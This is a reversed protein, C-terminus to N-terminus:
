RGGKLRGAGGKSPRGRKRKPIPTATHKADLVGAVSIMKEHGASSGGADQMIEDADARFDYEHVHVHVDQAHHDSEADAEHDYDREEEDEDDSMLGPNTDVTHPSPNTDDEISPQSLSSRGIETRPSALSFSTHQSPKMANTANNPVSSPSHTGVFRNSTSMSLQEESAEPEEHEDDDDLSEVDDLTVRVSAMAIERSLDGGKGRMQFLKSLRPMQASEVFAEANFTRALPSPQIPRSHCSLQRAPSASVPHLPTMSSLALSQKRVIRDGMILPHVMPRGSPIVPTSPEASLPTLLTETGDLAVGCEKAAAGHSEYNKEHAIRCHNLFGQVSSISNKGCFKCVLKMM